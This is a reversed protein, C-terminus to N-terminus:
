VINVGWKDIMDRYGNISPRSSDQGKWTSSDGFRTYIEMRSAESMGVFKGRDDSDQTLGMRFLKKQSESKFEIDIPGILDYKCWKGAYKRFMDYLFTNALGDLLVGEVMSKAATETNIIKLGTLVWLSRIQEENLQNKIAFIKLKSAILDVTGIMKYMEAMANRIVERSSTAKSLSESTGEITEYDQIVGNVDNANQSVQSIFYLVKGKFDKRKNDGWEKLTDAWPGLYPAAILAVSLLLDFLTPKQADTMGLIGEYDKDALMLATQIFNARDRWTQTQEDIFKIALKNAQELQSYMALLVAADEKAKSRAKELIEAAKAADSVNRVKKMLKDDLKLFQMNPNSIWNQDSKQFRRAAGGDAM